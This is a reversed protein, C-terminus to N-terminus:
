ITLHGPETKPLVCVVEVPVRAMACKRSTLYHTLNLFTRNIMLERRNQSLHAIKNKQVGHSYPNMYLEWRKQTQPKVEVQRSYWEIKEEERTKRGLQTWRRAKRWFKPCHGAHVETGSQYLDSYCM